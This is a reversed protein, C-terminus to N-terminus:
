TEINRPWQYLQAPNPDEYLHIFGEMFKRFEVLAANRPEKVSKPEKGWILETTNGAVPLFPVYPTSFVFTFLFTIMEGIAGTKPLYTLLTETSLNDTPLPIDTRQLCPPSNPIFSLIPNATTNLRSAGHATLRFVLSQLTTILNQRSDPTPIGAINGDTPDSSAVLWERVQRDEVVEADSKWTQNVFVSVYKGTAEFVSLLQGAIPYQDWDSKNSFDAMDIGNNKLTTTPDDQLFTRGKAFNNALEIFQSASSVSTPPAIREWLLLLTDNFPIIYESQPAMFIRLPHTEEVYNNLTMLLSASVIHWHYVHGLWIGYLTISTKAAMLAYLWAGNECVGFSYIVPSSNNTNMVLVVIPKLSKDNPNQALLTLTAPTFRPNGKVESVPLSTFMRLDIAYLLRDNLLKEIEPTWANGLASKYDTARIADVKELILLNYAFGHESITPWFASNAKEVDTMIAAMDPLKAKAKAYVDNFTTWSMSFQKPETLSLLTLPDENNSASLHKNTNLRNKVKAPKLEIEITSNEIDNKLKQRDAEAEAEVDKGRGYLYSYGNANNEGIQYTNSMGWKAQTTANARLGLRVLTAPIKSLQFPVAPINEYGLENLPLKHIYGGYKKRRKIFYIIIATILLLGVVLLISKLDM